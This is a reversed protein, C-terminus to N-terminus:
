LLVQALRNAFLDPHAKMVGLLTSGNFRRVDYQCLTMLPFRKALSDYAVEYNLIEQPDSFGDYTAMEGVVRIAGVGSGVALWFLQEWTDIAARANSGVSTRTVLSGSAVAVEPDVGEGESLAQFYAATLPGSAVLFCRDGALLGQRLFPVTLSLRAADRDYFTALHDHAETRAPPAATDIAWGDIAREAQSALFRALDAGAFQRTRRRGIRRVPLLGADSWRRVSAESVGLLRAATRTTYLDSM